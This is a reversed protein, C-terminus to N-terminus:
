ETQNEILRRLRLLLHESHTEVVVRQDNNAMEVFLDALAYQLRPNLHIEPQEAITLSQRPATLAQVILPLVQSAGFGSDAINTKRSSTADVFFLSFLQGESLNKLKLEKGFDFRNVWHNLKTQISPMKQRLLNAMHEGHSGVSAPM